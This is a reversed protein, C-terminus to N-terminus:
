IVKLSFSVQFYYSALISFYKFSLLLGYLFLSPKPHLLNVRILFSSSSLNLNFKELHAFWTSTAGKVQFVLLNVHM